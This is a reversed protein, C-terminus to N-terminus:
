ENYETSYEYPLFCGIPKATVQWSARYEGSHVGAVSTGPSFVTTYEWLEIQIASGARKM